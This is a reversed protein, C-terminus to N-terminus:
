ICTCSFWTLSFLLIPFSFIGTIILMYYRWRASCLTSPMVNICGPLVMKYTCLCCKCHEDFTDSGLPTVPELVFLVLLSCIMYTVLVAIRVSLIVSETLGQVKARSERDLKTSLLSASNGSAIKSWTRCLIHREPCPRHM